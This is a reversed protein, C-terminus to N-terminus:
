LPIRVFGAVYARSQRVVIRLDRLRRVDRHVREARRCRREELQQQDAVADDGRPLVELVGLDDAADRLRTDVRANRHRDVRKLLLDLDLLLAVASWLRM